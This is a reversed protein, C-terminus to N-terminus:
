SEWQKTIIPEMAAAMMIHHYELFDVAEPFSAIERAQRRIRDNQLPVVFGLAPHREAPINALLARVKEAEDNRGMLRLCIAAEYCVDIELQDIWVPVSAVLAASLEDVNIRSLAAPNKGWLTAFFVGHVAMFGLRYEFQDPMNPSYAVHRLHASRFELGFELGYYDFVSTIYIDELATRGMWRVTASSQYVEHLARVGEIGTQEHATYLCMLFNLPDFEISRILLDNPLIHERLITAARNRIAETDGRRAMANLFTCYEAFTKLGLQDLGRVEHVNPLLLRYNQLLYNTSNKRFLDLDLQTKM